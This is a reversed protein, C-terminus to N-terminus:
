NVIADGRLKRFRKRAEVTFTSGPFTLLLKNYLSKAQEPDKLNEEYIRATMFLADDGLIDQKPAQIIKALNFIADHYNTQRLAIKAKLFYIEDTLSHGPYQKLMYDLKQQAAQFKNQFLLLEAAAYDQMALTSTDLGTNDTILLSLEMADNAIERSTAMKLIDLNAQALEFDGKYYNLRANRLKAEHGLPQEKHSKEVQSYLLTSEWPEGNLLYIDGLSIKANAVLDPHARPTRIVEELLKIATEKEDLYFAHLLAMNKLAEATTGTRGFETLLNQYEAVLTRISAQDVPYTNKIQEERANLLRQRATAYFKGKPYEKIIYEYAEIASEYDGNRLSIAGIEFIRNGQEQNRRDLSRAQIMASAFDKRQIYVWLLLENLVAKEPNKQVASILTREML